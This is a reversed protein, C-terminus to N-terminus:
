PFPMRPEYTGLSSINHWENVCWQQSRCWGSKFSLVWHRALFFFIFRQSNSVMKSVIKYHKIKYLM